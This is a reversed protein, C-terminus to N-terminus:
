SVNDAYSEQFNNHENQVDVDENDNGGGDENIEFDEVPLNEYSSWSENKSSYKDENSCVNEISSGNDNGYEDGAYGTEEEM